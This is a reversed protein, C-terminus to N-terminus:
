CKTVYEQYNKPFRDKFEVAIGAGMIGRCNVGHGIAHYGSDFLNGTKEIM